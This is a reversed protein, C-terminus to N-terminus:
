LKEQIPIDDNDEIIPWKVTHSPCYHNFIGIEQKMRNIENLLNDKEMYMEELDYGQTRKLLKTMASEFSDM